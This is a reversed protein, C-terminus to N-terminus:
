LIDYTGFGGMSLGGVYLKKEEVKRDKVLGRVLEMVLQMPRTAIERAAISFGGLSDSRNGRVIAAWSSDKPCQPFIVLAPFKLRNASDLFLNAGWTLQLENDNGREGAGHLFLVLPYKKGEKYNVPYLIRYLLTDNGQIFNKKIFLNKDQALVSLFLLLLL